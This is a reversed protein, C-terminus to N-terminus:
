GSYIRPVRAGIGCVVDYNITGWDRALDDADQRIEGQQGVLVVEDGAQAQPVCDLQVLIQDMCIRGVVPVPQGGVLVRSGPTRHFGDAYGVPVTGIRESARTVYEHGYSIGTGPPLTKVQSLVSKWALAPRLEPPLRCEGSPHLGYMAVGLRILGFASSPRLLGAASNAAHVWVPLLGEARLDALVQRFFAEQHDSTERQREDARAFHTFIGEFVVGPTASLTRALPVALQSPAGLRGMGTDVKLQLLARRGTQRALAAALDIQPQEWVTMSIRQEIALKVQQDPTYGLLLIPGAIGARRLELAEELRAVGCWLAGANLAAKAVQVAGHGYANAKVVAMIAVGSLTKFYRVNAAIASLDIDVWNSAPIKSSPKQTQM